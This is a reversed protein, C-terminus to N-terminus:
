GVNQFAKASVCIVAVDIQARRCQGANRSRRSLLDYLAKTDAVHAGRGDDYIKIARVSEEDEPMKMVLVSQQYGLRTGDMVSANPKMVEHWLARLSAMRLHM